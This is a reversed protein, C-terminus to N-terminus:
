GCRGKGPGTRSEPTSAGPRAPDPLGRLLRGLGIFVAAGVAAVAVRGTLGFATVGMLGFLFGGVLAGAMGAFIDGALGQSGGSWVAGALWGVVLGAVLLVLAEMGTM